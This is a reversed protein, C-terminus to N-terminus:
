ERRLHELAVAAASAKAQDKTGLVTAGTHQTGDPLTVSARHETANDTGGVRRVDWASKALNERFKRQVLGSLATMAQSGDVGDLRETQAPLESPFRSGLLRLVLARAGNWGKSLFVAAIIAEVHDSLAKDGEVQRQSREGLGMRIDSLLDLDRAVDALVGASTLADRALDLRGPAAESFRLWLEHAVLAGLVRDGLWELSEHDPAAGTKQEENWARRTLAAQLYSDVEQDMADLGLEHLVANLSTPKQM